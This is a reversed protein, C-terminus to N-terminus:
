EEGGKDGIMATWKELISERNEGFLVLDEDFLDDQNVGIEVGKMTPKIIAVTDKQDIKALEKLNEDDSYLWKIFAKAAEINESNKFAAVGEPVYPMGDKPYIIKVNNEKELEELTGDLYTIGIAVEGAATKTCPDSGRKAYYPINKNLEEFYKWGKEEGKKQLLANVVAYNTGSIAPNSMLIEEKYDAKTLDDWTKPAELNKEELIDNNVIFGVITLGKSFWKNDRDKYEPALDKVAEFDVPELLDDNAAAMFADIGGGFWLDAAPKGGEARVKSLVEGSSMSIFEVKPGVDETYKEFLPEYKDSTAVVKLTGDLKETAEEKTDEKKTDEKKTEEKKPEEGGCAAMSLTMAGALLIALVKKMRKM